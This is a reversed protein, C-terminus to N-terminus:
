QEILKLQLSNDIAKEQEQKENKEIEALKKTANEIVGDNKSSYNEIVSKLTHKAQFVDGKDLYIDALLLFAKGLWFQYPTNKSIFDMIENEADGKKNTRYLIEAVLYKAEAGQEIKTDAAVNKLEPLADNFQNLKYYSKGLTYNADRILVENALDSKKVLQAAVIANQLNGLKMNCRMQGTHAKLVNWKSEAINELRNFFELSQQYNEANFTLESARSLAPESFINTPQNAVFTYHENANTYQGNKYLIEALYFHANLAFSGNPFQNLYQQLQQNAKENGAMYAREAAMYTLSDQESVSVNVGQGFRNTYAFYENINNLEVYCNKIGLMAARAEPTGQYNEAVEKYQKLAANFDGNNYNILGMQLLAKRYYTGSNFRTVIRQYQQMADYNQGLREHARGLEYLADDQYDSDTFEALLKQLKSIKEQQNRLLGECFAMQFLAYDPDYTKLNYAQQYNQKAQKYDTNAFYYDGVRNYADALKESRKGHMASIYKRFTSAASDLNDLKFYAYALNYQGDNYEPMSFAGATNLFQNYAVVSNNYDGVRYLAEAKWFLANAKIDRNYNGNELSLNFFDIAQNYALNNFLELGRYYTVRQYAQLIAPTKVKINEISTIADNYNRTVMYVEVLIRYAETNRESNPYLSIYKDFAKITENFPSYSLEYTLKAYSFLADEKIKENFDLESAAQFAMRAKEKEDLKIYCDALHYYANQAMEGETRTAKELLPAAKGFQQTTYYCYGLIYSDENTKPGPSNFYTELYPVADSYKRLHFYSDGIIKSLEPVHQKEVDNIISTTYNVVESYKEQKYYIHSVYLPIVQSYTPDGNLKTFGELASQFKDQLYMIHSWYYTAPKSYINNTNMIPYFESAAKELNENMLHAYGNQYQLQIRQSESLDTRDVNAFSRVVLKYQKRNFQYDGLNFWAENKYPSEPFDHIYTSLMKSGPSHGAKLASVSKFYEAESYIESKADVNSQIKEFEHFSANFKGQDFLSRAMKIDKQINDFYATKQAKISLQNLFLVLLILIYKFTKM